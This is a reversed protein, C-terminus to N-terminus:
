KSTPVYRPPYGHNCRSTSLYKYSAWTSTSRYLQMGLYRCQMGTPIRKNVKSISLFGQTLPYRLQTCQMNGIFPLKHLRGIVELTISVQISQINDTGANQQKQTSRLHCGMRSDWAHFKVAQTPRPRRFLQLSIQRFTDQRIVVQTRKLNTSKIEGYWNGQFVIYVQTSITAVRGVQIGKIDKCGQETRPM